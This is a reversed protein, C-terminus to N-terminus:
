KCWFVDKCRSSSNMQFSLSIGNVHHDSISSSGGLVTCVRKQPWTWCLSKFGRCADDCAVGSERLNFFLCLKSLRVHDAKLNQMRMWFCTMTPTSFGSWSTTLHRWGLFLSVVVLFNLTCFASNASDVRNLTAFMWLTLLGFNCICLIDINAHKWVKCWMADSCVHCVNDAGQMGHICHM